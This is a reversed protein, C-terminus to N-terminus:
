GAPPRPQSGLFRPSLPWAVSGRRGTCPAGRRNGARLHLHARRDASLTQLVDGIPASTDPALARSGTMAPVLRRLQSPGCRGSVPILEWNDQEDSPQSRLALKAAPDVRTVELLEDPRHVGPASGPDDPNPSQLTDSCKLALSRITTVQKAKASMSNRPRAPPRSGGRDNRTCRPHWPHHLITGPRRRGQPMSRPRPEKRLRHLVGNRRNRVRGQM